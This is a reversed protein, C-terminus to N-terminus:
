WKYPLKDARFSALAIFLSTLRQQGDLVVTLEYPTTIVAPENHRKDREHYYPLFRYFRYKTSSEANVKWFLFSGIPYDRMLSDFLSVVQDAKWEYERQIAPLLLKGQAIWDVVECIACPRELQATM